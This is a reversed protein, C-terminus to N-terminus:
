GPAGVVGIMHGEWARKSGAKLVLYPVASVLVASDRTQCVSGHILAKSSQADFMRSSDAMM